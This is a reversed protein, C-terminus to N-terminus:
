EALVGLKELTELTWKEVSEASAWRADSYMMEPMHIDGQWCARVEAPKGYSGGTNMETWWEGAPMNEALSFWVRRLFAPHAIVFAAREINLPEDARKVPYRWETRHTGRQACELAILEALYGARGLADVLAVAVAGRRMITDAPIGGSAGTNVTVSIIRGHGRSEVEVIEVMNEPVCQLYAQVDPYDGAVAARTEQRMLRSGIKEILRASMDRIKQAGEPWGEAGVKLAREFGLGADWDPRATNTRSPQNCGPEPQQAAARWVAGMTGFDVAACAGREDKLLEVQAGPFRARIDDATTKKDAM